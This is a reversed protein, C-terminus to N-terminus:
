ISLLSSFTPSPAISKMTLCNAGNLKRSVKFHPFSVIDKTTKSMQFKNSVEKTEMEHKTNSLSVFLHIEDYVKYTVFFLPLVFLSHLFM